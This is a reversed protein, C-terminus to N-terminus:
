DREPEFDFELVDELCIEQPGKTDTCYLYLSVEDVRIKRVTSLYEVLGNAYRIRFKCTSM